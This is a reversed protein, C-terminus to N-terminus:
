ERISKKFGQIALGMIELIGFELPRSLCHFFFFFVSRQNQNTEKLKATIPKKTKLTHKNSIDTTTLRHTISSLFLVLMLMFTSFLDAIIDDNDAM